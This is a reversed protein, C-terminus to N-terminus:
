RGRKAQAKKANAVADPDSRGKHPPTQAAIERRAVKSDHGNKWLVERVVAPNLPRM